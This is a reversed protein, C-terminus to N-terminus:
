AGPNDPRIASPCRASASAMISPRVTDAGKFDEAWGVMGVMMLWVIGIHIGEIMM